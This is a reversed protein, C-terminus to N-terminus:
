ATHQTKGNSKRGPPMEVNQSFGTLLAMGELRPWLGWVFCRVSILLSAWHNVRQQESQIQVRNVKKFMEHHSKKYSCLFMMSEPGFLMEFM